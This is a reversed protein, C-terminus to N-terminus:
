LLDRDADIGDLAVDAAGLGFAAAQQEILPLVSYHAHTEGQAFAGDPRQRTLQLV